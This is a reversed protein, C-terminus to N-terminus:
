GTGRRGTGRRGTGSGVTGRGVTGRLNSVRATVRRRRGPRARLFAEVANTEVTPLKDVPLKSFDAMLGKRLKRLRGAIFEAVGPDRPRAEWTHQLVRVTSAVRRSEPLIRPPKCLTACEEALAEITLFHKRICDCCRKQPQFLHDELLVMQKVIDRMNHAPRLM